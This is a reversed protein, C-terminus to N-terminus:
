VSIPRIRIQQFFGGGTINGIEEIGSEEGCQLRIRRHVNLLGIERGAHESPNEIGKRLELL